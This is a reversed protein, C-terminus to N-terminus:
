ELDHLEIRLFHTDDECIFSKLMEWKYDTINYLSFFTRSSIYACTTPGIVENALWTDAYTNPVNHGAIGFDLRSNSRFLM